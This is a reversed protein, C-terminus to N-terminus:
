PEGVRRAGDVLLDRYLDRLRDVASHAVADERAAAAAAAYRDPDDLLAGIREALGGADGVRVLHGNRGERVLDAMDGVDTVVAPLGCAMAEATAVSLGESRSTLVFVRSARYIEEVDPLRGLFDVADEVGLRAADRRLEPGLPGDGVIAARADPRRERLRAMAALLDSLRKREILQAVTVVAYPREAEPPAPAYRDTDISPPTVVVRGAALGASILRQRGGTGMTGVLTSGRAVGLLAWEVPPVPRPLRGLIANDSAWGGGEWERPGGICHYMSRTGSVRGALFGNVGHPMINWSLIWDPRLRRALRVCLATKSGARGLAKRARPSPVAGRLKPLAPPPEDAVLVVEEVEPIALIPLLHSRLQNPNFSVTALLRM